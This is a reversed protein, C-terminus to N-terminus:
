NFYLLTIRILFDLIGLSGLLNIHVISFRRFSINCNEKRARERQDRNRDKTKASENRFTRASESSFCGDKLRKGRKNCDVFSAIMEPFRDQCQYRRKRGQALPVDFVTFSWKSNSRIGYFYKNPLFCQM